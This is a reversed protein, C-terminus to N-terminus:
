VISPTIFRACRCRAPMSISTAILEMAAIPNLHFGGEYNCYPGPPACNPVSPVKPKKVAASAPSTAILHGMALATVGSVVASGTQRLFTRRNVTRALAESVIRIRQELM